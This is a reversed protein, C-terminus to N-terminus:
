LKSSEVNRVVWCSVPLIRVFGLSSQTKVNPVVMARSGQGWIVLWERGLFLLMGKEQNAVELYAGREECLLRKIFAAQRTYLVQPPLPIKRGITHFDCKELLASVLSTHSPLRVETGLTM